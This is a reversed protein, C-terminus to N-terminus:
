FDPASFLASSLQKFGVHVLNNADIQVPYTTLRAAGEETTAAPFNSVCDGSLLSFKWNHAYCVIALDEVDCLVLSTSQHPCTVQTAFVQNGQRFLLVDTANVRIPGRCLPHTRRNRVQRTQGTVTYQGRFSPPHENFDPIEYLSLNTPFFLFNHDSNFSAAMPEPSAHSKISNGEEFWIASPDVTEEHDNEM